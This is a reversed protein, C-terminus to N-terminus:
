IGSERRYCPFSIQPRKRGMARGLPGARRSGVPKRGEGGHDPRRGEGESREPHPRPGCWSRDSARGGSLGIQAGGAIRTGKPGSFTSARRLPGRSHYDWPSEFGQQRRSLAVALTRLMTWILKSSTRHPKILISLCHNIFFQRTSKRHGFIFLYHSKRLLNPAFESHFDRHQPYPRSGSSPRNARRLSPSPATSSSSDEVRPSDTDRSLRASRLKGLLRRARGCQCRIWLPSQSPHVRV